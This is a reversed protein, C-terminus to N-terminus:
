AYLRNLILGKDTLHLTAGANTREVRVVGKRKLRRIVPHRTMGRELTQPTIATIKLMLKEFTDLIGHAHQQFKM